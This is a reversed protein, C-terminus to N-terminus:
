DVISLLDDLEKVIGDKLMIFRKRLIDKYCNIENEQQYCGEFMQKYESSIFHNVFISNSNNKEFIDELYKMPNSDSIKNNTKSLIYTRNLPSNLVHNKKDRLQKSSEGIKVCNKLPIIHHDQIELKIKETGILLEKEQAIECANLSIDYLLDKPQGSLIYQLITKHIVNPVVENENEGLLLPMDCFGEVNLIRDKLKEYNINECKVIWKYLNQIDKICRDNQNNRYEGGIISAWYWFEIKALKENSNWVDDDLLLYAIPLIMLNYHLDTINVVGCRIQLFSCARILANIVTNTKENIDEHKINLIKDRKMLDIKIDDVEGYNTYSLISLLNLYQKKILTNIENEKITEMYSSKFNKPKNGKLLSTLAKSVEIEGELLSSIRKSLSECNQNRAARAVVLDFNDLPTGGKNIREFIVVARCIEDSQLVIMDAKQRLINELFTQIQVKWNAALKSWTDLINTEDNNEIYMEIDPEVDGLIEIIKEQNEKYENILEDKRENAIKDIVYEYFAKEDQEKFLSYLPILGEETTFKSKANLISNQREIKNGLKDHAEFDPNYWKKSLTVGINECFLRNEINSPEEKILNRPNFKLDRWGFIDIEDIKPIVRLFWRVKLIPYVERAAEKWDSKSFFDSFVGKLSTLRQQGDLLYMCEEKPNVKRKPFGLEKTAFDDNKGNLILFSGIPLSLILSAILEKQQGKNWVLDRQFDPLVLKKEDVLKFLEILEM